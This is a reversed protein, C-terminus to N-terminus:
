VNLYTMLSDYHEQLSDMFETESFSATIDYNYRAFAALIRNIDVRNIKLTIQLETSDPSSTIFSNLVLGNESEVIRAIQSLSYNHKDVSLVIVSGPESFSASEAFYKLLDNLSIVGLYNQEKDVVPILTLRYEHMLRMLDYIHDTDQVYPQSMKLAYSGVPEDTDLEFIEEESILGLLQKDNVIPLHRVHFEGMIMLADDGTNSTKLSLIDDSILDRAIMTYLRNQNFSFATSEM